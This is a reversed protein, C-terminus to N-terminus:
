IVFEAKKPRPVHLREIKRKMLPFFQKYFSKASQMLRVSTSTIPLDARCCSDRQECWERPFSWHLALCLSFSLPFFDKGPTFVVVRKVQTEVVLNTKTEKVVAVVAVAVVMVITVLPVSAAKADSVPNHHHHCSDYATTTTANPTM